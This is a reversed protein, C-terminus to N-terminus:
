ETSQFEKEPEARTTYKAMREQAKATEPAEPYDGQLAEFSKMVADWDDLAMYSPLLAALARAENNQDYPHFVIMTLFIDVAERHRGLSALCDGRAFMVSSWLALEEEPVPEDMLYGLAKEKEDLQWHCLGARYRILPRDKMEYTQALLEEYLALADRWFERRENLQATILIAEHVPIGPLDRYTRLRGILRRLEDIAPPIAESTVALDAKAFEPPRPARLAIITNKPIGTEIWEGSQVQRDMWIMDGERRILRVTVEGRATVLTFPGYGRERATQAAVQGAPATLWVIAFLRLVHVRLLSM